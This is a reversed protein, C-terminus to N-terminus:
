MRASAAVGASADIALPESEDALGRGAKLFFGSSQQMYRRVGSASAARYLTGGGEMRLKRDGPVTTILASPHKPLSTLQDIVVEAKAYRLAQEVAPADCASVQAIAAGTEVLKRAGAESHTMGTVTHGQRVLEAILPQGIAGTAGAVFVRM